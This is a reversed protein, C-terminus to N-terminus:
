RGFVQVVVVGLPGEVVAMGVRDFGPSLLLDRHTPSSMMADHAAAITSALALNEGVAALRM